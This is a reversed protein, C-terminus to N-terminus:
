KDGAEAFKFSFTFSAAHQAKNSYVTLEKEDGPKLTTTLTRDVSTIEDGNAKTFIIHIAVDKVSVTKGNRVAGKLELVKDSNVFPAGFVVEVDPKNQFKLAGSQAPAKTPASTAKGFSIRQEYEEYAPLGAIEFTVDKIEGAGISGPVEHSFRKVEHKKSDFFIMELKVHDVPSKMGNRCQADVKLAAGPSSPRHFKFHAFEVDEANSFDGGSLAAEPPADDNNLKISYSGYNKPAGPMTFPINQEAGGALSGSGLPGNWEKIKTKKMDWFTVFLKLNTAVESGENKVHLAGAFTGNKDVSAEKGLIVVNAEGKMLAPKMEPQAVDSNGFWDEKKSGNYKVAITYSQFAPVLEAVFTLTKSEGPKLAGAKQTLPGACIEGLGTTYTLIASVDSTAAKSVNKVTVSATVRNSGTITKRERGYSWASLKFVSQPEEASMVFPMLVAALMVAVVSKM